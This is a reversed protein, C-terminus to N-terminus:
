RAFTLTAFISDYVADPAEFEATGWITALRFTGTEPIPLTVIGRADTPIAAFTRSGGIEHLKVLANELPQGQWYVRFPVEDGFAPNAIPVIELTHGVPRLLFENVGATGNLIAKSRRSYREVGPLAESATRARHAIIPQIGEKVIYDQFREGELESRSPSSALAIMAATGTGPVAIKLGESVPLLAPSLDAAGDDTILKLDTVREAPVRWDAVDEGHGVYLSVTATEGAAPNFNSPELWFDHAAAPAALAAAILALKWMM